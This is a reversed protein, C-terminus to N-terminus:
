PGPTKSRCIPGRKLSRKVLFPVMSLMILYALSLIEALACVAIDLAAFPLIMEGKWVM